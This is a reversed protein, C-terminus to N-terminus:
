FMSLVCDHAFSFEEWEFTRRLSGRRSFLVRLVDGASERWFRLRMEDGPAM